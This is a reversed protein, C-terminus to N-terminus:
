ALFPETVVWLARGPPFLYQDRTRGHDYDLMKLLGTMFLPWWVHTM